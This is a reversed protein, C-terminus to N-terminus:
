RDLCKQIFKQLPSSMTGLMSYYPFMIFFVFAVQELQLPVRGLYDNGEDQLHLWAAYMGFVYPSIRCYATIYVNQFLVNDCQKGIAVHNKESLFDPCYAQTLVFNLATSVVFISLPVLWARECRSMAKIIFPSVLYLQFEVAVTWTHDVGHGVHNNLFLLSM